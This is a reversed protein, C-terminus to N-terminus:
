FLHRNEKIWSILKFIGQHCDTEPSWGLEKKIRSLDSIYVKQDSPRWKKFRCSPRKKTERALIGLLELLSLTNKYGGGINYVGYNIGSKQFREYAEVLDTVYLIDRVQKGDGYITIPRKCIAAITFWAVWGQDELGFQRPGYICSMRFIGIRLGYLLAYDQMYIDGSLKSSGYPTHECLDVTFNEDIGSRYRGTFSYRKVGERVPVRNVNSGYVKNTSCFIIVPKPKLSRAVELVNFTGVVNNEFDLKPNTISSTVATQAATHIILNAGQSARKLRNFDCIDGKVLKINKYRKLYEWNYYLSKISRGLLKGRSLNDFALVENGRSAYYEAAHSGVFGAGGTVIVKM